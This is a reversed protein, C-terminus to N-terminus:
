EFVESDRLKRGKQDKHSLIPITGATIPWQIGIDADNWLIIREDDPYYYNTDMYVIEAGKSLVFFGHAFGPPVWIQLKNEATLEHGVWKGFYQSSRRLDVAVDYITGAVVRILKGQPHRIQYHLGRLVYQKSGSHNFQVFKAQIGIEGFERERYTEMFFGREDEFVHPKLLKVDPISSSIIEINMDKLNRPWPSDNYGPGM